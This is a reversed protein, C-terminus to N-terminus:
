IIPYQENEYEKVTTVLGNLENFEASEKVLDKQMLDYVRALAEDYQSETQIQKKM